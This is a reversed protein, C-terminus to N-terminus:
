PLLEADEGEWEDAPAYRRVENYDPNKKQQRVTLVAQTGILDDMDIDLDGGKLEEETWKGSARMVNYLTYPEYPPLMANDFQKRGEDEGTIVTWEFRWYDNDPHKAESSTQEVTVDTLEALYKGPKLPDFDEMDAFNVTLSM